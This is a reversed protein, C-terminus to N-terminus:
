LLPTIEKAFTEKPTFGVHGGAINGKRDIIFTTPIAEMGGFDQAIKANGMLVPYNMAFQKMFSRVGEPGGEDLSVGVVVLGQKGYKKQLEAFGPIELKCPPCWTAWFDLIVVKGAFDSSKVTKGDVDKLEWEPAKQSAAGAPEAAQASPIFAPLGIAGTIFSCAPCSGTRGSVLVYASLGGFLLLKGAHRKILSGITM